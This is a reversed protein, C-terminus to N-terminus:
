EGIMSFFHDGDKLGQDLLNSFIGSQTFSGPKGMSYKHSPTKLPIFFERPHKKYTSM